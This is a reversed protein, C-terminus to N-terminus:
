KRINVQDSQDQGQDQNNAQDNGGKRFEDPFIDEAEKEVAKLETEINAVSILGEEAMQEM